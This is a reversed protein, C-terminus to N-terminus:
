RLLVIVGIEFILLLNLLNLIENMTLGRPCPLPLLLLLVLVLRRFRLTPGLRVIPRKQESGSRKVVRILADRVRRVLRHFRKFM